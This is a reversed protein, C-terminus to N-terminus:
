QLMVIYYFNVTDSEVFANNASYLRIQVNNQSVPVTIVPTLEKSLMFSDNLINPIAVISKIKKETIVNGIMMGANVFDMMGSGCQM